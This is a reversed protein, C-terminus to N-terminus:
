QTEEVLQEEDGAPLDDGGDDPEVSPPLAELDRRDVVQDQNVDLNVTMWGDDPGLGPKIADLQGQLREMEAEDGAQEAAALDAELEAIGNEYPTGFNAQMAGVRAGYGLRKALEVMTRTREGHNRFGDTEATPGQWGREILTTTEEASFSYAVTDTDEGPGADRNRRGLAQQYRERAAVLREDRREFGFAKGSRVGDFFEQLDRPDGKGGVFGEGRGRGHLLDGDDLGHGVGRGNGRGKGNGGANGGNAHDSKALATQWDLLPGDASITAPLSNLVLALGSTLLLRDLRLRAPVCTSSALRIM